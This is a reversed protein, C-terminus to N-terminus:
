SKHRQYQLLHDVCLQHSARGCVRPVGALHSAENIIHQYWHISASVLNTDVLYWIPILVSYNNVRWLTCVAALQPAACARAQTRTLAAREQSRECENDM